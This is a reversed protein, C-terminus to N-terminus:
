EAKLAQIPRKRAAKIAPAIGFIIGVGASVGVALLISGPTFVPNIKAYKGAVKAMGVAGIIGLGGGLLSLVIAEILFQSLVTGSSAGIAKRLGIERTRETVSVLMINMIGIGGVLLSISAIAVIFTTLLNLITDVTSLIDKQTLVTFDDQGGHSALLAKRASDAAATVNAASDTQAILRLIQPTGGGTFAKADDFPLYVANDFNPGALSSAGADTPKITGIITFKIGRITVTKGLAAADGFLEQKAQGGLVVVNKDGAALFRGQDFKITQTKAFDPTTALLLTGNGTASGNAVIGSVLSIPAVASIHDVKSLADIDKPTLTSSGISSAASSAGSSKGVNIKGSAVAIANANVVGTIQDQVTQKVGAGIALISVVAAVGIIIGLMTLFSRLKANRLSVLAMKLNEWFMMM